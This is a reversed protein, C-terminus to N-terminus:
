GPEGKEVVTCTDPNWRFSYEPVPDPGTTGHVILIADGPKEAGPEVREIGMALSTVQIQLSTLSAVGPPYQVTDGVAVGYQAALEDRIRTETEILLRRLAARSAMLGPITVCQIPTHETM